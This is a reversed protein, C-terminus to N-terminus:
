TSAAVGIQFKVLPLCLHQQKESCVLLCSPLKSAINHRLLCLCSVFEQTQGLCTIAARLKCRNYLVYSVKHSRIYQECDSLPLTGEAARLRPQSGPILFLGPWPVRLQSRHCTRSIQWFLMWMWWAELPLGANGCISQRDTAQLCQWAETILITAWAIRPPQWFQLM